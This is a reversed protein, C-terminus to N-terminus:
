RDWIGVREAKAKAEAGRLDQNQVDDKLEALGNQILILVLNQGDMRCSARPADPAGTNQCRIVRHAISNRLTAYARLGCAWREGSSRLCVDKSSFPKIEPIFFPTGGEGDKISGDPGVVPDSVMFTGKIEGIPVAALVRDQSKQDSPTAKQGDQAPRAQEVQPLVAQPPFIEDWSAILVIWASLGLAVLVKAYLPLDALAQVIEM